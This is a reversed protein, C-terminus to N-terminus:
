LAKYSDPSSKEHVVASFDRRPFVNLLGGKTLNVIRHPSKEFKNAIAAWGRLGQISSRLSTVVLAPDNDGINEKEAHYFHSSQNVLDRFIGDCDVGLLYIDKFGMYIASFLCSIVVNSLGIGRTLDAPCAFGEHLFQNSHIWYTNARDAYAVIEPINLYSSNLLLTAQPCNTIIESLMSLPWEGTILKPDIIAYYKPSIELIQPHKYFHNVFFTSENKLLALDQEKISPGNGVIFCRQGAHRNCLEQNRALNFKKRYRLLNFRLRQALNYASIIQDDIRMLTDFGSTAKDGM